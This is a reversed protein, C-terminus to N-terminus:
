FVSVFAITSEIKTGGSGGYVQLVNDSQDFTIVPIMSSLPRKGPEIRNAKTKSFVNM